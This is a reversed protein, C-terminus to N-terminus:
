RMGRGPVTTESPAEGPVPATTESPAMAEDRGPEM